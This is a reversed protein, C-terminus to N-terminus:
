LFKLSSRRHQVADHTVTQLLITASSWAKTKIAMSRILVRLVCM